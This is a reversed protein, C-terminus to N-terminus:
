LIFTSCSIVVGGPHSSACELSFVTPSQHRASTGDKLTLKQQQQALPFFHKDSIHNTTMIKM